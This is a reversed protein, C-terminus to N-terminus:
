SLIQINIHFCCNGRQLLHCFLFHFSCFSPSVDKRNRIVHAWFRARAVPKRPSALVAVADDELRVSGCFSKNGNGWHQREACLLSYTASLSGPATHRQQNAELKTKINSLSARAEETSLSNVPASNDSLPHSSPKTCSCSAESM